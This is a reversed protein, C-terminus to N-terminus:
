SEIAEEFFERNGNLRWSSVDTVGESTVALIMYSWGEWAAERDTESPRAPHDPHSHWIGVVALGRERAENEGALMDEPNLEYRDEARQTNLNRAARVDSVEVTDDMQQGLLLGCTEYPYGATVLDKLQALERHGIRLQRM